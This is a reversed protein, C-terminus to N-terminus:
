EIPARTRQLVAKETPNADDARRSPAFSLGLLFKQAPKEFYLFLLISLGISLAAVWVSNGLYRELPFHIMYLAFSADGLLVLASNSLLRAIPGDSRSFVYVLGASAPIFFIAAAFSAPILPLALISAFALALVATEARVTFRGSFRSLYIGLAFEFLRMPPFVYFVWHTIPTAFTRGMVSVSGGDTLTWDPFAISWALAILLLAIGWVALTRRGIGLLLPFLAYFFAENSLSWSPGNAAFNIAIIPIWSQALVLSPLTDLLPSLPLAFLYTILHLPYIRAFRRWWFDAKDVDPYNIALVYGSLLFFFGVGAYGAKFDWFHHAVVMMAAVFRLCTLPLIHGKPSVTM